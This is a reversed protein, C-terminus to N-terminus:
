CRSESEAKSLFLTGPKTYILPLSSPWQMPLLYAKKLYIYPAPFFLSVMDGPDQLKQFIYSSISSCSRMVRSHQLKLYKHAALSFLQVMDRAAQSKQAAFCIRAM